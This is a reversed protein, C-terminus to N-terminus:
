RRGSLRPNLVDTRSLHIPGHHQAAIRPAIDGTPAEPVTYGHRELVQRTVLRVAPADEVVLVTETGRAPEAPAPRPIAPAAPEDGRPRSVKLATGGGPDPAGGMSGGGRREM